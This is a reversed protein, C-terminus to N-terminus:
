RRPSLVAPVVSVIGRSPVDASRGGTTPKEALEEGYCRVAVVALEIQGLRDLTLDALSGRVSDGVLLAGTLVAGNVAVAVLVALNIRWYHRLAGLM